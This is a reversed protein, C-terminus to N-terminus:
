SMGWHAWAGLALTVLPVVVAVLALTIASSEDKPETTRSRFATLTLSLGIAHALGIQPVGLPVVFWGWLTKATYGSM